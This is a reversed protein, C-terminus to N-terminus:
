THVHRRGICQVVSSPGNHLLGEHITRMREECSEISLSELERYLLDCTMMMEAVPPGGTKNGLQDPTYAELLFVGGHILAQPIAGHVKRRLEPPLHCFISVIADWRQNGLEFTALDQCITTLVVGKQTALQRAKELGISSADVSTVTHGLGALFVGNRGEGDALCLIRSRPRLLHANERLFDNPETGYVYENASYRDDWPNINREM